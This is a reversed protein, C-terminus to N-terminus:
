KLDYHFFLEDSEQNRVQQFGLKKLLFISSLNSSEVGAILTDALKSRKYDDLLAVLLESAIGKGWHEQALLYGLHAQRCETQDNGLSVFSFGILQDISTLYVLFLTSENLIKEFWNEAVDISNIHAFYPPLNIVVEPSLIQIISPYIANLDLTDLLTNAEIVKLRPTSFQHQM